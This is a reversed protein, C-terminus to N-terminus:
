VVRMRAGYMFSAAVQEAFARGDVRDVLRQDVEAERDPRDRQEVLHADVDACFTPWTMCSANPSRMARGLRM